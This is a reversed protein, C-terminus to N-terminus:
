HAFYENDALKDNTLHLLFAYLLLNQNRISLRYNVVYYSRIKLYYYIM